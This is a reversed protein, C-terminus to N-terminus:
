SRDGRPVHPDLPDDREEDRQLVDRQLDNLQEDRQLVDRQLDDCEDDRPWVDVAGHARLLALSEALPLGVVNSYSGNMGVVFAGALGQIAYGGAKDAGEGTRVYRTLEDADIPRFRVETTVVRSEVVAGDRALAIATCVTHARGSLRSLMAENDEPSAPKGLVENGVCVITDAALTPASRVVATAKSRAMREVYVLPAEDSRLTEDIDAVQVEFRVRLQSLLDRRRPSASALVLTQPEARPTSMREM